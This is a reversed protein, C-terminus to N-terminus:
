GEGVIEDNEGGEGITQLTFTMNFVSTPAGMEDYADTIDKVKVDSVYKIEKLGMVFAALAEKGASIGTINVAGEQSNLQTIGVSRPMIRELDVLLQYLSENRSLTGEYYGKITNLEAMAQEYNTFLQEIDEISAIDRELQEKKEEAERYGMVTVATLAGSVLAAGALMIVYIRLPNGEQKEEEEAKLNLSSIIAGLNPLYAMVEDEEFGDKVKITVNELHRPSVVPINLEREMAEALGRVSGGEGFIKGSEIVTGPNRSVHFDVVRIVSSVIDKVAQKYEEGALSIGDEEKTHLRRYAEEESIRSLEAAAEVITNEGFPVSRRFVQAQGAMISVNTMDKEVQLVLTNGEELQQKTIQFISNGYYDISSIGLKLEAALEHYSDILEKQVAVASLRYKKAGDEEFIELVTYEYVYDKINSMPFYDQINATIIETIKKKNKVYPLVIEKNAIRRSSVTFILKHRKYGKEPIAQRIAAALTQVDIISGDDVCGKPTDIHFANYLNVNKGSKKIECISTIDPTIYISFLKAMRRVM